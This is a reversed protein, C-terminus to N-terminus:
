IMLIVRIKQPQVGLSKLRASLRSDGRKWQAMKVPRNLRSSKNMCLSSVVVAALAALDM